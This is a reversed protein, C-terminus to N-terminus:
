ETPGVVVAVGVVVTGGDRDGQVLVAEDCWWWPM